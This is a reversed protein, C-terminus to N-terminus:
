LAKEFHFEISNSIDGLPRTKGRHYGLGEYLAHAKTFRTDSWLVMRRAGGSRALAEVHVTLRKALGRGRCDPRVYLRHIEGIPSGDQALDPFDLAICACVRGRADEVVLFEGGLLRGGKGQRQQWHGPHLLDPMDDHPDMFCGPYEAFCLTILGFLDQADENRAPRLRLHAEFPKSDYAPSIM